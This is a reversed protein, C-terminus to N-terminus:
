EASDVTPLREKNSNNRREKLVKCFDWLEKDFAEMFASTKATSPSRAGSLVERRKAIVEKLNAAKHNQKQPCIAQVAVATTAPKPRKHKKLEKLTALLTGRTVKGM